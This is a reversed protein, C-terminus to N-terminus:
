CVHQDVSLNTLQDQSLVQSLYHEFKNAKDLLLCLGM